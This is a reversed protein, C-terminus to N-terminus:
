LKGGSGCDPDMTPDCDGGSTGGTEGSTTWTTVDDFISKEIEKMCDNQGHPCHETPIGSGSTSYGTTGGSTTGGDTTGGDTTGGDTTTGDTTSGSTTSGETTSGSTTASETTGGSTTGGSTTGGSTTSGSEDAMAEGTAANNLAQIVLEASVGHAVLNKAFKVTVDAMKAKLHDTAVKLEKRNNMTATSKTVVNPNPVTGTIRAHATPSGLLIALSFVSLFKYSIRMYDLRWFPIEDGISLDIFHLEGAERFHQQGLTLL